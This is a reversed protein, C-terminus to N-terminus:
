KLFKILVQALENSRELVSDHGCNFEQLTVNSIEHALFKSEAPLALIDEIGYVVLTQAKIKKLRSRGDFKTLVNFQRKQDDLSQPFPNEIVAKKFETIRKQDKLFEEGFVWPLSADFIFDFDLNKERMMLLSKLGLLMAERWKAVSNLICLKSVQDPYSSAIEQAITGGMSQGVVCPKELKLFHALAVIDKAIINATLESYRDKTRGIGHNDFILIQFHKVLQELIPQWYTHDCTYGSILILPSGTGHLEYYFNVDNIQAFAM